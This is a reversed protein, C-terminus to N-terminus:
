VGRDDRWELHSEDNETEKSHRGASDELAQAVIACYPDYTM